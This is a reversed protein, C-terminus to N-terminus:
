KVPFEAFKGNGNKYIHFYFFEGLDKKLFWYFFNHECISFDLFEFSLMITVISFVHKKESEIKPFDIKSMKLFTWFWFIRWLNSFKKKM